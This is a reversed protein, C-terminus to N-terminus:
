AHNRTKVRIVHLNLARAHTRAHTFVVVVVVRSSCCMNDGGHALLFLVNSDPVGSRAGSSGSAQHGGQPVRARM